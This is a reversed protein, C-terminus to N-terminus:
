DSGLALAQLRSGDGNFVNVDVDGPFGDVAGSSSYQWFTYFGWGSPLAPDDVGYNAIWLPNTGGFDAADGTCRAWWDATTYLVADRGTRARYQATFDGIWAVMDAASLGYCTEGYPNYEIDLAGPLTQGDPSWGGGHDVFYDAQEAGSSADPIAFHYAGRTLGAYYSGEYQAGFEASEYYTGETAKVYAFSVGAGAGAGWDLGRNWGSVDVGLPAADARRARGGPAPDPPALAAGCGGLTLLGLALCLSRPHPTRM